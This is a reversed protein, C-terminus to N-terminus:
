SRLALRAPRGRALSQAGVAVGDLGVVGGAAEEVGRQVLDLGAGGLGEVFADAADLDLDAQGVAFLVEAADGADALVDAPVHREHHVGVLLPVAGGGQPHAPLQLFEVEDPDFLRQVGVVEFPWAWRALTRSVGMAVPSISAETASCLPRILALPQSMMWGSAGRTPPM